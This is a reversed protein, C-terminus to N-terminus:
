DYIVKKTKSPPALLKQLLTGSYEYQACYPAIALRSNVFHRLVGRQAESLFPIKKRDTENM